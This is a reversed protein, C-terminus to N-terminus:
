NDGDKGVDTKITEWKSMLRSFVVDEKRARARSLFHPNVEKWAEVFNKPDDLNDTCTLGTVLDTMSSCCPILAQEPIGEEVLYASLQQVLADEHKALSTEFFMNGQMPKSLAKAASKAYDRMEQATLTRVTLRNGAIDIIRNM